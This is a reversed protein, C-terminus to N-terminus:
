RLFRGELTEARNGFPEEAPIGSIRMLDIVIKELAYGKARPALSHATNFAEKISELEQANTKKPASAAAARQAREKSERQDDQEKILQKLKLAAREAVDIRHKADQPVFNKHEILIRVFNRSIELRKNYNTARLAEYPRDMQKRKSPMQGDAGKESSIKARLPDPVGARAWAKLLDGKYWYLNAIGDKIHIEVEENFVDLM